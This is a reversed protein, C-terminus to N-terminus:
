YPENWLFKLPISLFYDKTEFSEIPNNKIPYFGIEITKGKM